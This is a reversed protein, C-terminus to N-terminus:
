FGLLDVNFTFSQNQGFTAGETNDFTYNFTVATCQDRYRLLLSQATTEGRELDERWNGGVTWRDTLRYAVSATLFEDREGTGRDLEFEELQQREVRLYTLAGSARGVNARLNSEGRALTLDENDFRFRNDIQFRSGYRIDLTGVYDSTEDGLGTDRDFADTDDIRFQQGILGSVTLGNTYVATGSVGVNLRQGDEWRDLGGSKSWDFLTVNDFQFFQSDEDLIDDAYDGEPSLALQVRPEIIYTARDTFKALPYSWEAGVTPLLRATTYSADEADRPLVGACPRNRNDLLIGGQLLTGDAAERPRCSEIGQDADTYHYLDSRLQAFGRLRHGGRTTVAREYTASAIARGTDLGDQRRLFLLNGFLSLEGGVTPVGYNRVHTIRPLAFAQYDDDDRARLSQFGIASIDTLTDETRRVFALESTLRDPQLIGVARRLEGEPEVDYFRLYDNDSVVNLDAEVRWGGGFDKFASGFFHGRRDPLETLGFRPDEVSRDDADIIGAQVVLGGDHTRLRYEGQILLGLETMARPSFTVDQHDSIAWYYPVEAEFGLRSSTGITPFLFGSQREVTPDPVQLYPTYFVPVGLVEVFANRFRIVKDEEDQVVRFAKVRWTPTRADGTEACVECATYVANNLVNTGDASSRVASSGALRSQGSLLASFNSAVGDGLDGTLQIEDAFYVQGNAEYIAVDGYATVIDTDPEYVVRAATLLRGGYTARVDGTAVIPGGAADRIVADAQFLVTEDAEETVVIDQFATASGASGALLAAALAGRSVAM